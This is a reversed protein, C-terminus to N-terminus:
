RYSKDVVLLVPEDPLEAFLPLGISVDNDEKCDAMSDPSVDLAELM